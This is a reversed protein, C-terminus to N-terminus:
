FKIGIELLQSLVMKKIKFLIAVTLHLLASYRNNSKTTIYPTSIDPCISYFFANLKYKSILLANILILSSLSDACTMQNKDSSFNLHNRKSLKWTDYILIELLFAKKVTNKMSFQHSNTTNIALNEKMWIITAM